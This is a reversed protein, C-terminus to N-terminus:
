PQRSEFRLSYVDADELFFRLRVTTGHLATLESRGEWTVIRSIEDGTLGDQNARAFGPLPHGDADCLEVQVSGAASTAYNLELRDGTFTFPKTVATGGPRGASLSGFGDLRIVFRELHNTPQAYHRSYYLSLEGPATPLLGLAAYNNRPSWNRRDLGPRVFATLFTRDYATGGRSTLFVGDNVGSTRSRPWIGADAFEEATLVKKGPLFRNPFALYLQPARFYPQTQQTYLEEEPADGYTMHRAPSWHILDPSTSRSVQRTGQYATGTSWTRFYLVYCEEAQSWFIINMSDFAGQLGQMVGTSRWHIGDPSVLLELGASHVGGTAKYREAAPVGPRTDLFPTFNTCAHSHALIVNNARSGGVEVLGLNPKTWVIGDQSEAYCTVQYELDLDVGVPNGNEPLNPRGRYYMRFSPGDQLVTFYSSYRGEWPQDMRIAVGAPRPTHLRLETGTLEDILWRDAFLERRDALARVPDAATAAQLGAFGALLTLAIRAPRNLRQLPTPLFPFM